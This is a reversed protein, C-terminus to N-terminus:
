SRSAQDTANIDAKKLQTVLADIFNRDSDTTFVKCFKQWEKPQTEKIFTLLDQQYLATERNYDDPSGLQWGNTVMQHIIDEQFVREQTVDNSM